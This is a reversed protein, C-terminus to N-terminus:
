NCSLSKQTYQLIRRNLSMRLDLRVGRLVKSIPTFNRFYLTQIDQFCSIVDYKLSLKSNNKVHFFLIHLGILLRLPPLPLPPWRAILVVVKNRVGILIFHNSLHQGRYSHPTFLRALPFRCETQPLREVPISTKETNGNNFNHTVLPVM